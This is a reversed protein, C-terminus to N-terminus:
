HANDTIHFCSSIKQIDQETLGCEAYHSRWNKFKDRIQEIVFNAETNRIGFGPAAALVNEVTASAM